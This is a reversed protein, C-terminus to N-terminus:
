PLQGKLDYFLGINTGNFLFLGKVYQDVFKDMKAITTMPVYIISNNPLLLDEELKAENVINFLNVTRVKAENADGWYVVKVSDLAGLPSAGGAHAIAQAVTMSKASNIAGAKQVEGFVFIRNGAISKLNLSVRFDKFQTQYHRNIEDNLESLTKGSAPIGSLLPLHISGDPTVFTTRGYNGSEKNNLATKLLDIKSSFKKVNVTVLPDQLMDRYGSQIVSALATPKLGAAMFDGKGPLTIRGDPRVVALRSMKPHYYFEVEIEDSVGLLYDNTEVVPAIHYIVELEDGSSFRYSELGNNLGKIINSRITQKETEPIENIYVSNGRSDTEVTRTAACGAVLTLVLALLVGKMGSKM